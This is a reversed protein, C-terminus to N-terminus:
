KLRLEELREKLKNLAAYIKHEAAKRTIGMLEAVEKQSKGEAKNLLFATREDPSLAALANQYRELFEKKRMVYEPSEDTYDKPKVEEHKLVVKKHKAANLMLRNATTYLFSKASEPAVKGCNEWLKIFAEQTMDGPNLEPGFKYYLFAGLSQAYKEYIKAFLQKECINSHLSRAM